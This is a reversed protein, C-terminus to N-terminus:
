FIALGGFMVPKRGFRDSMPGYFLQSVALGLMFASLTLQIEATSASFVQEMAPLSPLYT